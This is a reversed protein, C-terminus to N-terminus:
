AGGRQGGVRGGACLRPRTPPASESTAFSLALVCLGLVASVTTVRANARRARLVAAVRRELARGHFRAGLGGLVCLGARRNEQETQLLEACAARETATLTPAGREDCALETWAPFSPPSGCM